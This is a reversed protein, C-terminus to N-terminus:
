KRSRETWTMQFDLSFDKSAERRRWSSPERSWKNDCAL